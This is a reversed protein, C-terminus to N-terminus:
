YKNQTTVLLQTWAGYKCLTTWFCLLLFVTTERATNLTMILKLQKMKM